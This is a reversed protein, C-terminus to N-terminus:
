CLINMQKNNLVRNVKGDIEIMNGTRPSTPSKFSMNDESKNPSNSDATKITEENEGNSKELDLKLSRKVMVQAQHLSDSDPSMNTLTAEGVLDESDCNLDLERPQPHLTITITTANQAVQNSIVETVTTENMKM